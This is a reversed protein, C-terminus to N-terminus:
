PETEKHSVDQNRGSGSHDPPNAARLVEYLLSVRAHLKCLLPLPSVGWLRDSFAIVPPRGRAHVPTSRGTTPTAPNSGVAKREWLPRAVL